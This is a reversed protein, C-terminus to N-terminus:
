MNKNESLCCWFTCITKFISRKKKKGWAIPRSFVKNYHRYHTKFSCQCFSQAQESRSVFLYHQYHELWPKSGWQIWFFAEDAEVWFVGQFLSRTKTIKATSSLKQSHMVSLRKLYLNPIKMCTQEEMRVHWHSLLLFALTPTRILRAVWCHPRRLVFNGPPEHQHCAAHRHSPTVM